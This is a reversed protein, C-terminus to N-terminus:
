REWEIHWALAFACGALLAVPLSAAPGCHSQLYLAVAAAVATFGSLAASPWFHKEIYASIRRRM